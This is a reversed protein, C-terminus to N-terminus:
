KQYSNKMKLLLAMNEGLTRMNRIGEADKEVDGVQSAIVNNSGGVIFMQMASLYHIMSDLASIAGNRRLVVVAAGIKQRFMRGNANAVFGTRDMLAKMESTVGHFYVPSGLIIGDANIMKEIWDNLPDSKVACFRTKNKQCSYCATCGRIATGGVQVIETEIGCQELENLAIKLIAATNGDPRPSGNFAVVKMAIVENDNYLPYELDDVFYQRPPM